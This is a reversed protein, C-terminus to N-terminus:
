VTDRTSFTDDSSVNNNSFIDLFRCVDNAAIVVCRASPSHKIFVSSVRFISFERIQRTPVRIGLDSSLKKARSFMILLYLM